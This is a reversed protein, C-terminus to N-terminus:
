DGDENDCGEVVPAIAMVQVVVRVNPESLLRVPLTQVAMNNLRLDALQIIALWVLDKSCFLTVAPDQVAIHLELPNEITQGLALGRGESNFHSTDMVQHLRDTSNPDNNSFICLITSKHKRTNGREYIPIYPEYQNDSSHSNASLRSLEDTTLDEADPEFPADQDAAAANSSSHQENDPDVTHIDLEEEDEDQERDQKGHICVKQNDGFLSFMDFGEGDVMKKFPPVWGTNTLVEEAINHGQYWATTLSVPCLSVDGCWSAPIIHDVKASIDGVQDKWNKLNLWRARCEWDPHQDLISSCIIASEICNSLQYQDVNSDNGVITRICGFLNELPDTGLLIVFFKSNINDCKAKAVCCYVNKVMCMLDFILQSPFARGCEKHYFAMALHAAASLYRLQDNLSIDVNTYVEIFHSYLHGLLTLTGRAKHKTPPMSSSPPSLSAISTLLNYM